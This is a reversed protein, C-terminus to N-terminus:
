RMKNCFERIALMNHQHQDATYGKSGRATPHHYEVFAIKRENTEIVFVKGYDLKDDPFLVRFISPQEKAYVVDHLCTFVDRGCCIVVDPSIIEIQKKILDSDRKAYQQLTSLAISGQGEDKKINIFAFYKEPSSINCLLMSLWKFVPAWTKEERESTERFVRRMDINQNDISKENEGVNNVHPNNVDKLAFLVKMNANDYDDESLIGDECFLLKRSKWEAFLNNLKSTKSMNMVGM